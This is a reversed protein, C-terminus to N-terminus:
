VELEYNDTFLDSNRKVIESTSGVDFVRGDKLIAINDCFAKAILMDHTVLVITVSLEVQIRKLLRMIMTANKPDLASTCEDCLLYRPSASLARAIAVRQKQGGSLQKPRKNLHNEIDVLQALEQVRKKIKQDEYGMLELPLAINKYVSKQELLGFSQFIMGINYRLKRLQENPLQNIEQNDVKVSGSDFDELRNLCKLLTSKGAGSEGIIGFFSSEPINLSISNLIIDKDYRKVLNDVQIM